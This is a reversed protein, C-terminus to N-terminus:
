AVPARGGARGQSAHPQTPLQSGYVYDAIIAIPKEYYAEERFPARLVFDIGQASLIVHLLFMFNLYM